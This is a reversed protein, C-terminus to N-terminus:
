ICIEFCLYIYIDPSYYHAISSLIQYVEPPHVNRGQWEVAIFCFGVEWKYVQIKTSWRFTLPWIGAILYNLVMGHLCIPSTFTYSWWEQDWCYISTLPWSWAGASKGRTGKLCSALHAGSGTQISLFPSFDARAPFRFGATWGTARWQVIWARPLM